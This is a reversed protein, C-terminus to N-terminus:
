EKKKRINAAEPAVAAVFGVGFASLFKFDYKQGVFFLISGIIAQLGCFMLKAKEADSLENWKRYEYKKKRAISKAAKREEKERQLKEFEQEMQKQESEAKQLDYVKHGIDSWFRFFDVGNMACFDETNMNEDLSSGANAYINRLVPYRKFVDKLKDKPDIM